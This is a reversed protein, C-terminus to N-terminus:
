TASFTNVFKTLVTACVSISKGITRWSAAQDHRRAVDCERRRHFGFLFPTPRPRRIRPHFAAAAPLGRDGGLESREEGLAVADVERSRAGGALGIDLMATTRASKQADEVLMRDREGVVRAVALVDREAVEGVVV